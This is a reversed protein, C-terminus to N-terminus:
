VKWDSRENRSREMMGKEMVDERWCNKGRTRFFCFFTSLPPSKQNKNFKKWRFFKRWFQRWFMKKEYFLTPTFHTFPVFVFVLVCELSLQSTEDPCFARSDSSNQSGNQYQLGTIALSHALLTFTHTHWVCLTHVFPFIISHSVSGPNSQLNVKEVLEKQAM